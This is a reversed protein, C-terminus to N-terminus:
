KKEMEERSVISWKKKQFFLCRESGQRFKGLKSHSVNDIAVFHRQSQMRRAGANEWGTRM